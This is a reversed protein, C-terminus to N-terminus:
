VRKAVLKGKDAYSGSVWGIAAAGVASPHRTVAAHFALVLVLPIGWFYMVVGLAFYLPLAKKM